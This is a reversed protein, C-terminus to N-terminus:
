VEIQIIRRPWVSYRGGVKFSGDEQNVESITHWGPPVVCDFEDALLVRCGPVLAQFPTETM